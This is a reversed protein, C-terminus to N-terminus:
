CGIKALKKPKLYISMDYGSLSIIREMNLLHEETYNDEAISRYSEDNREDKVVKMRRLSKLIKIGTPNHTKKGGTIIIPEIEKKLNNRVRRELVTYVLFAIM